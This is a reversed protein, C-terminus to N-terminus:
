IMDLIFDELVHKRREIEDNFLAINHIADNNSLPTHFSSKDCEEIAFVKFGKNQFYKYMASEKFLFIKVGNKICFNINGMSHQRMAGTVYYGCSNILGFYDESKMFGNLFNINPSCLTNKLQNGYKRSGYSVPTIIIQTDDIKDSIYDWVDLHNIIPTSSNGFLVNTKPSNLLNVGVKNGFSYPSYFEKAKFFPYAQKLLEYETSIVPQFYDIRSLVRHQLYKYRFNFNLFHYVSKLNLKHYWKDCLCRTKEKYLRINVLPHMGYSRSYIDYGWAWWIIKKDYPIYNFLFWRNPSLSHFYVCDYEENEFFLQADRKSKIETISWQSQMAKDLEPVTIAVHVFSSIFRGDSKFGSATSSLFKIDDHVVHLIKIM